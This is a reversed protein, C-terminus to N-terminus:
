LKELTFTGQMNMKVAVGDETQTDSTTFTMVWTDRDKERIVAQVPEGAGNTFTVTNGESAYWIGTGTLTSDKYVYQMDKGGLSMHLLVEYSGKGEFIRPTQAFTLVLDMKQGEGTFPTTTKIGGVETESVGTYTLDTVKWDGALGTSPRTDDKSCSAMLLVACSSFVLTSFSKM